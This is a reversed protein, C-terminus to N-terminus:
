LSIEAVDFGPIGDAHEGIGTLAELHLAVERVGERDGGEDWLEEEGEGGRDVEGGDGVVFGERFGGGEGLAVGRFESGGWWVSCDWVVVDVNEEVSGSDLGAVRGVLEGERCEVVNDLGVEGGREVKSPIYAVVPEGADAGYPDREAVTCDYIDGGEEREM